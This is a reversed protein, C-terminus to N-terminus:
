SWYDTKGKTSEGWYDQTSARRSPAVPADWWDSQYSSEKDDDMDEDEEAHILKDNGFGDVLPNHFEDSNSADQLHRMVASEDADHEQVDKDGFTDLHPEDSDREIVLSEKVDLLARPDIGHSEMMRDSLSDLHFIFDSAQRATLGYELFNQEVEGAIKDLRQAYAMVKRQKSM